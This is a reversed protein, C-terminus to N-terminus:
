RAGTRTLAAPRTGALQRLAAVMAASSAAPTFAAVQQQGAAGLRRALRPDRVLRVLAAALAAADQAPALLATRNHDAYDRHGGIDTAVVACGRAMAEAPPLAWGEMRSPALFMGCGDLLAALQRRSPRVTWDIWAPVQRPREYTSFVCATLAPEQRRALELAALGVDSGKVPHQHWLMAVRRPDRARGAAPVSALVPDVFNPVIRVPGAGLEDAKDALWGAIVLTHLPLRWSADVRTAPGSWTEYSQLFEFGWGPRARRAVAEVTRWSTGVVAVQGDWQRPLTLVSRVSVGPHHDHWGSPALTSGGTRARRRVEAAVGRWPRDTVPAWHLVTTRLGAASLADAHSYVVSYGGVPVRSWRPLVFVVDM